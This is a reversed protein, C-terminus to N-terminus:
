WLFPWSPNIKPLFDCILLWGIHFSGASTCARSRMRDRTLLSPSLPKSNLLECKALGVLCGHWDCKAFPKLLVGVVSFSGTTGDFGFAMGICHMSNAVWPVWPIKSEPADFVTIPDWCTASNISPRSSTIRLLNVRTFHATVKLNPFSPVRWLVWASTKGIPGRLSFIATTGPPVGKKTELVNNRASRAMM